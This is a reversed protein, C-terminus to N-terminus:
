GKREKKKPHYGHCDQCDNSALRREANGPPEGRGHCGGCSEIGPLLVDATATSARARAHCTECTLGKSEKELHDQHDFNSFPLWEGQTQARAVWPYPQRNMDVVHCTVCASRYLHSEAEAVQAKVSARVNLGQDSGSGRIIARRRARQTGMRGEDTQYIAVLDLYVDRPEGHRAEVDRRRDDFTLRHCRQCHQEYSVPMMGTPGAGPRHCDECDLTERGKPGLLGPKLHYAHNLKISSPDAQRSAADAIPLRGGGALTVSFNAHGEPFVTISRAFAPAGGGKVKLDGHCAICTADSVATLKKQGRHEFHCDSCDPNVAQRPQHDERPHCESAGCSAAAPGKWPAHCKFCGVDKKQHKDSIAGPQFARWVKGFPLAAVAGAAALTLLLALSGKTLFPRRLAYAGAYDVVPARVPAAEAKEAVVVPRVELGLLDAASRSHVKIQSGGVGVTDGEKLYTASEVKKGNLYTGTESGLDTLKYGAPDHEIQAHELAVTPDDLRLGANTGRGILLMDGDVRSIAPAAEAPHSILFPM